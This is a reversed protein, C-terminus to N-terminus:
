ASEAVRDEIQHPIRHASCRLVVGSFLAKSAITPLDALQNQCGSAVREVHVGRDVWWLGGVQGEGACM